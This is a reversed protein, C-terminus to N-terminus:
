GTSRGDTSSCNIYVCQILAIFTSVLLRQDIPRNTTYLNRDRVQVAIERRRIGIVTLCLPLSTLNTTEVTM